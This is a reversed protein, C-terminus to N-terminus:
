RWTQMMINLIMELICAKVQTKWFFFMIITITRHHSYYHKIGIILGLRPLHWGKCWAKGNYWRLMGVIKFIRTIYLLSLAILTTKPSVQLEILFTNPFTPGQGHLKWFLSNNGILTNKWFHCMAM